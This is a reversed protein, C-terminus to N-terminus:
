RSVFKRMCRGEMQTCRWLAMANLPLSCKRITTFGSVLGSERSFMKVGLMIKKDEQPIM